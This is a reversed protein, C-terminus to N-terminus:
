AVDGFIDPRLDAAKVLGGTAKQILKANEPRIVGGKVWKSVAGQSVGVKKALAVQGGAVSIAKQILKM